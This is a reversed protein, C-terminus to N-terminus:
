AQYFKITEIERVIESRSQRDYSTCQKTDQNRVSCAVMKVHSQFSVRGVFDEAVVVGLHVEHRTVM